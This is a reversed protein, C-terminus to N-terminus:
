EPGSGEGMLCATWLVMDLSLLESFFFTLPQNRPCEFDKDDDGATVGGVGGEGVGGAAGLTVPASLALRGNSDM